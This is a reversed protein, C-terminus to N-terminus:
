SVVWDQNVNPWVGNLEPEKRAETQDLLKQTKASFGSILNNEIHYPFQDHLKVPRCETSNSCNEQGKSPQATETLEFFLCRILNTNFKTSENM